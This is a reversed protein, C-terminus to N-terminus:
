ENEVRRISVDIHDKKERLLELLKGSVTTQDEQIAIQEGEAYLAQAIQPYAQNMIQMFRIFIEFAAEGTCGDDLHVPLDYEVNVNGDTTLCFKIFRFSCNLQNCAEMMRLRKEAPIDNALGAIRVAIDNGQNRSIFRVIILPGGNKIGFGAGIEQQESFDSIHYKVGHADFAEQILRITSFM